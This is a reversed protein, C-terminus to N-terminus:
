RLREVEGDPFSAIFNLLGGWSYGFAPCSRGTTYWRGNGARIAAYEFRTAIANKTAPRTGSFAIVTDIPPEGIEGTAPDYVVGLELPQDPEPVVKGHPGAGVSRSNGRAPSRDNM